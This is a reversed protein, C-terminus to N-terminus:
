KEILGPVSGYGIFRSSSQQIRSPVPFGPLNFDFVSVGFRQVGNYTRGDSAGVMVRQNDKKLRGLYFMVHTIPPDRKIDYTGVWFMVDGPKLADLEFTDQATSNVAHFLNAKRVWHYQESSSRPVKELGAQTLVYYITGSCDMGGKKPDASGYTYNLSQTTLGLALNLIEKVPKSLQDFGQIEEPALTVNPGKEAFLSFITFINILFVAYRM